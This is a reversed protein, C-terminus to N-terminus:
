RSKRELYELLYKVYPTYLTRGNWSFDECDNEVARDYAERLDRALDHPIRKGALEFTDQRAPTM